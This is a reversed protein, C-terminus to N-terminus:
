ILPQAARHVRHRTLRAGAVGLLAFVVPLVYIIVMIAVTAFDEFSFLPKVWRYQIAMSGAAALMAWGVAALPGLLRGFAFGIALFYAFVPLNVLLAQSVHGISSVAWMVVDFWRGSFLFFFAAWGLIALAAGCPGPLSRVHLGLLLAWPVATIALTKYLLEGDGHTTLFYQSPYVFMGAALVLAFGLWRAKGSLVLVLEILAPYLPLGLLPMLFFPHEFITM